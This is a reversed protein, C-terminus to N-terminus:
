VDEKTQKQRKLYYGVSSGRFAVDPPMSRAEGEYHGNKCTWRMVVFPKLTMYVGDVYFNVWETTGCIGCKPPLEGQGELGYVQLYNLKGQLLENKSRLEDCNKCQIFKSLLRGIM